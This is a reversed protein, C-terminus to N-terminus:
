RMEKQIRIVAVEKRSPLIAPRSGDKCRQGLQKRYRSHKEELYFRCPYSVEKVNQECKVKNTM